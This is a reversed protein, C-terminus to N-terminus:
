PSRNTTSTLRRRASTVVQGVRWDNAIIPPFEWSHGLTVHYPYDATGIDTDRHLKGHTVFKFFKEFIAGKLTFEQLGSHSDCTSRPETLLTPRKAWDPDRCLNETLIIHFTYWLVYWLLHTSSIKPKMTSPDRYKGLCTTNPRWSFFDPFEQHCLCRITTQALPSPWRSISDNWSFVLTHKVQVSGFIVPIAYCHPPRLEVGSRAFGESAKRVHHHFRRCRKKSM